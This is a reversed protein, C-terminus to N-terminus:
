GQGNTTPARRRAGKKPRYLAALQPYEELGQRGEDTLAYLGKGQRDFWGYVNNYLIGQTEPGTGRERLAKPTLPGSAALVCAVRIASERYATVLKTRHSGAVNFDGSRNSIEALIERRGRAQRRRTFPAPEFVVEVPPKGDDLGVFLLGLELRRLLHQVGRAQSWWRWKSAPRPIAVYVRDTIKQRRAAQALLTLNMATKIEVILLEDGRVAAIDCDKVESRVTYGQGSLWRTLPASLEAETIRKV